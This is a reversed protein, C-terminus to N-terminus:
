GDAAGREGRPRVRRFGTWILVDYGIKLAGAVVFPGAVWLGTLWGGIAAGAPRVVYRATNTYSAAATREGPDVVSVVYAQRAPVDMQSITSRALLMAVAPGLAPMAPVLMLLVNSPLHTFVMTNVQGIRNALRGAVVSSAAQLLGAAFFVLGMTEITAGFRREFWYVIFANVV